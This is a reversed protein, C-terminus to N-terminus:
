SRLLDRMGTPTGYVSEIWSPVLFDTIYTPIVPPQTYQDDRFTMSIPGAKMGILGQRIIDSEELRDAKLLVRSLEAHAMKVEMPIVGSDIWNQGNRSWMSNRPWPLSQEVTTQYGTWSIGTTMLNTAMVAAADKDESDADLWEDRTAAPVRGQYYLDIEAVTQFSNANPAGPTAIVTVAM